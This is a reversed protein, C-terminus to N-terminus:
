NLAPYISKVDNGEAFSGEAPKFTVKIKVVKGVLDESRLDEDKPLQIATALEKLNRDPDYDDTPVLSIYRSVFVNNRNTLEKGNRDIVPDDTVQFVLKLNNGTNAKNQKVEAKHIKVTYTGDAIVPFGSEVESLARTNLKM